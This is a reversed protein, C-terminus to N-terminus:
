PGRGLPWSVPLFLVAEETWSSVDISNFPELGGSGTCLYGGEGMEVLSRGVRWQWSTSSDARFSFLTSSHNRAVQFPQCLWLRAHSYWFPDEQYSAIVSDTLAAGPDTGENVVESRPPIQGRGRLVALVGSGQGTSGPLPLLPMKFDIVASFSSANLFCLLVEQGTTLLGWVPPVLHSCAWSPCLSSRAQSAHCEGLCSQSFVSEFSQFKIVHDGTAERYYIHQCLPSAFNGRCLALPLSAPMNILM